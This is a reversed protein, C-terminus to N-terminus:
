ALLHALASSSAVMCVWLSYQPSVFTSKKLSKIKQRASNKKKSKFKNKTKSDSSKCKRGDNRKAQNYSTWILTYPSASDDKRDVCPTSRNCVRYYREMTWNEIRQDSADSTSISSHEFRRQYCKTRTANSITQLFRSAPSRLQSSALSVTV